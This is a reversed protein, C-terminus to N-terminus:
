GHYTADWHSGERAYVDGTGARYLAAGDSRQGLYTFTGTIYSSVCSYPAFDIKYGNWHSYTGSAHGTETGGTIHVSCGSARKLAIVGEASTRRLQDFSTCTRAYRDSCNGSSSWPIGASTFMSAAQSHTLKEDSGGSGGGSVLARWTDPGIIGDVSLGEADQFDRTAADTGPGFDGDVALGHGHANLLVQAAKVASGDSGGSVTVVLEPWTAPGVYGDATLGRASQFEEVKATTAPGFDGDATTGHGHATLLHQVATVRPGSSGGGVVPWDAAQAAPASLLTAFVATLVAAVVAPLRRM